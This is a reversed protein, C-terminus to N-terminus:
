SLEWGELRLTVVTRGDAAIEAATPALSTSDLWLTLVSNEGVYLRAAMADGDWWLLEVYGSAIAELMAPIASVPTLGEGDLPGAGLIVGDYGVQTEGRQATAKVGALLEPTLLEVTTQQGDFSVAMTYESVSDGYDATLAARFQISQAATVADRLSQFGEELRAEREGCGPLLLLIMMLASAIARRM